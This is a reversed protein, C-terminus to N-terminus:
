YVVCLIWEWLAFALPSIFWINRSSAMAGEHRSTEADSEAAAAAAAEGRCDGDGGDSGSCAARRRRRERYQSSRGTAALRSTCRVWKSRARRSARALERQIQGVFWDVSLCAVSCM